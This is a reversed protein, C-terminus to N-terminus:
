TTPLYVRDGVFGRYLHQPDFHGPASVERAGQFGLRTGSIEWRLLHDCYSYDPHLSKTGSINLNRTGLSLLHIAATDPNDLAGTKNLQSVTNSCSLFSGPLCRLLWCVPSSAGTDLSPHQSTLGNGYYTGRKLELWAPGLSAIISDNPSQIRAHPSKLLDNRRCRYIRSGLGLSCSKRLVSLTPM